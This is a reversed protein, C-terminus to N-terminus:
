FLHLRDVNQTVLLKLNGIDELITLAEHAPSPTANAVAPWGAFSRLWYRKRASARSVFDQHQIPESRQWNGQEDRYTPIGSGASIGAGTLIVLRNKDVLFNYASEIEPNTKISEAM